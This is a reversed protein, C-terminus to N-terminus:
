GQPKERRETSIETALRATDMMTASFEVGLERAFSPTIPGGGVIIHVHYGFDEQRIRKVTEKMSAMSTTLMASMAVIRSGDARLQAIFREASVNSGLDTVDFGASQLMIGVLSKGITHIDGQVTGVVVKERHEAGDAQELLLPRIIAVAKQMARASLLIQPIFREERSLMVGLRDMAPIMGKELIDVPRCGRALLERCQAVTKEEDGDIISQFITNFRNM